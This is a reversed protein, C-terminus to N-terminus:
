RRSLERRLVNLNAARWNRGCERDTRRVCAHVCARVCAHSRHVIADHPSSLGNRASECACVCCQQADADLPAGGILLPHRMARGQSACRVFARSACVPLTVVFASCSNAATLCPGRCSVSGQRVAYIAASLGAVGSGIIIVDQVDDPGIAGIDASSSFSWSAHADPPRAATRPSDGYDHLYVYLWFPLCGLRPRSALIFFFSAVPLFHLRFPCVIWPPVCHLAQCEALVIRLQRNM